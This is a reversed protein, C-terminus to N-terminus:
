PNITERVAIKHLASIICESIDLFRMNMTLRTAIFCIELFQDIYQHVTSDVTEDWVFDILEKAYLTKVRALEEHRSVILILNPDYELQSDTQVNTSTILNAFLSLVLHPDSQQLYSFMFEISQCLTISIPIVFIKGTLQNKITVLCNILLLYNLKSQMKIFMRNMQECLLSKPRQQSINSSEGIWSSAFLWPLSLIHAENPKDKFDAYCLRYFASAINKQRIKCINCLAIFSTERTCYGTCNEVQYLFFRTKIRQVLERLQQQASSELDFGNANVSTRSWLDSEHSLSHLKLIELIGERYCFISGSAFHEDEQDISDTDTIQLLDLNFQETEPTTEDTENQENETENKTRIQLHRLHRYYRIM